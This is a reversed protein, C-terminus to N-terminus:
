SGDTATGTLNVQEFGNATNDDIVFYAQREGYDQPDFVVTLTCSQGPLLEDGASSCSTSPVYFDGPNTGNVGSAGFYLAVDSSTNTIVLPVSVSNTPNFTAGSPFTFDLGGPPTAAATGGNISLTTTAYLGTGTLEIETEFNSANDAIVVDTTRTGSSTPQFIIPFTCTQNPGVIIHECNGADATFDSQNGGATTIDGIELPYTSSDEITLKQPSSPTDVGQDGFNLEEGGGSASTLATPQASPTLSTFVGTGNTPLFTIGNQGWSSDVVEIEGERLGSGLPDFTVYFSCSNKSTLAGCTNDYVAFDSADGEYSDVGVSSIDQTATSTNTILVEEPASTIYVAENGFALPSPSFSIPAPAAAVTLSLSSSQVSTYSNKAVLFFQYIDPNGTKDAPVTITKSFSTNTCTFRAPLGSFKPLAEIQCTASNEVKGKVTITGGKDSLTAKSVSFALISPPTTTAAGAAMTPLGISLVVALGGTALARAARLQAIRSM